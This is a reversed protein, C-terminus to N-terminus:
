QIFDEKNKIRETFGVLLKITHEVDNLSLVESPTHLYRTAISVLGTAVGARTLQIANADTGTGGAWADIQYPINLDKATNRLLDVVKRNFNAGRSIVPGKGVKLLGDKKINMSPYDTAVTVDIAIGIDPNIGYASTKAGRLGVEEQVTSVGYVSCDLSKKKLLRLTEAVCYAGIKDDFRGCIIDTFKCEALGLNEMEINVTMPDGIEIGYLEVGEKSSVGIDIWINELKAEAKREDPTMAHISKKGIVGRVEVGGSSHIAVRKGPLIAPDHGGIGKVYIFGDDDIHCVMLGLEDCHGALMVKPAAQALSAAPNIIGIVNGHCDRQIYEVSKEIYDTWVDQVDSEFGSPSATALLTKLFKLSEKRM